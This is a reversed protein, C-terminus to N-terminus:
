RRGVVTIHTSAVAGDEDVITLVHEGAEPQLSIKHIDQTMGIFHDDLHWYITKSPAQHAAEFVAKGPKGDPGTPLYIKRDGAPYIFQM